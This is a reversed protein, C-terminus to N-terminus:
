VRLVEKGKLKRYYSVLDSLREDLVVLDGITPAFRDSQAALAAKVIGVAKDRSTRTIIRQAANRQKRRNKLKIGGAEFLAVMENITEDGYAKGLLVNTSNEEVEGEQLTNGPQEGSTVRSNSVRNSPSNGNGQYEKWKCISITTFRSNSTLTVMGTVSLRKLAKYVTSENNGIQLALQKRGYSCRGTKKDATLLLHEFVRWATPDHRYVDNNLVSRHLKIWGDM